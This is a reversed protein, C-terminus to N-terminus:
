RSIGQGEKWIAYDSYRERERERKTQFFSAVIFFSMQTIYYHLTHLNHHMVNRAAHLEENKANGKVKLAM